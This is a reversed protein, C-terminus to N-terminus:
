APSTVDYFATAEPVVDPDPTRAAARAAAVTTTNPSTESTASQADLLAQVRPDIPM